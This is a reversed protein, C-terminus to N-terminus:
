ENRGFRSMQTRISSVEMDPFLQKLADPSPKEERYWAHLAAGVEVTIHATFEDIFKSMAGPSKRKGSLIERISNRVATTLDQPGLNQRQTAFHRTAAMKEVSPPGDASLWLEIVEELERVNGVWPQKKLWDRDTASFAPTTQAHSRSTQRWLRDVIATAIDPILEPTDSLPRLNITFRRIRFFLDQRFGGDSVMKLLDRNTAMFIRKDCKAIQKSGGGVPIFPRGELVALLKAQLFSPAEGIEDLLIDQYGEDRFLGANDKLAGSFAGKVHGFLHSEVLGEPIAPLMQEGFKDLYDELPAIGDHYDKGPDLEVSAGLKARLIQLWRRHGACVRAVHNKGTGTPGVLLVFNVLGLNKTNLRHLTSRLERVSAETGPLYKSLFPDDDQFGASPTSTGVNM